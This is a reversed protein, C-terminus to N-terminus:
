KMTEALQGCIGDLQDHAGTRGRITRRPDGTAFQPGDVPIAKPFTTGPIEQPFTMPSLDEQVDACDFTGASFPCCLRRIAKRAHTVVPNSLTTMKSPPHADRDWPRAAASGDDEVAEVTLVDAAGVVAGGAVERAMWGVVECAAWGDLVVVPDLLDRAALVPDAVRVACGCDAGGVDAPEGASVTAGESPGLRGVDVAGGDAGVEVVAVAGACAFLGTPGGPGPVILCLSGETGTFDAEGTASRLGTLKPFPTVAAIVPTFDIM